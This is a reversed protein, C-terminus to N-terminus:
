RRVPVNGDGVVAFAAWYFPHSTDADDMLGLQARRLAETTPVGEDVQFLGGILRQTAGYDDPVPWHSAVVTRGGAGVFARVLGDLAYDGTGGIGAERNAVLGGVSATNCASLIILDADLRLDFIEAFSLLGDSDGDGFSTLLAPRPPCQPNPATVLGHTAFHLIRYEDLDSKRALGTDTFDAGILLAGTNGEAEVISEAAQLETPAIPNNWVGPSWECRDSSFGGSRTTANVPFGAEGLPVNNGLGLYSYQADSARSSRVDRFATPAVATSVRMKRGLWATGRFDYPDGNPDDLIANHREVSAEDMVLLNLPLRLMDGDPEFVLHEVTGLDGNVPGLLKTYLEHALGIEFPYTITQGAQEIAISDRLQDVMRGIEAPTADVRWMRPAAEPRAYIAYVADDLAILKYYVEGPQLAATLRDLDLRNDSVVRYRPYRALGEQLALQRTRLGELQDRMENIDRDVPDGALLAVETQAIEVRAREIARGVNLSQRFLQAAEDSGESLERALVAQTQALGPRQLLQSATFMDAAAAANDDSRALLAFYPALLRRLAFAPKSDGDEVLQGYLTLAEDERGNRVLFSAFEARASLLAPSAPYNDEVLRIAAAFQAEAASADGRREALEALDTLIQARLWIVSAIRGDRVQALSGLAERLDQTAEAGQGQSRLAEARIYRAQADLLQVRELMTLAGTSATLTSGFEAALRDALQQTVVQQRLGDLDYAGAPLPTDLILQAEPASDRNLADLAEFNRAMRTLIPDEGIQEGVAVFITAAELFNGLNSQQLAVNLRAELADAGQLSDASSTFFEAAEAFKGANARRYAETLAAEASIADAQARAFALADGAETLPIEVEGAQVRNTALSALALQLAQEYVAIGSAAYTKGNAQGFVLLRQLRDGGMCTYRSKATLGAPIPGGNAEICTRGAATERALLKEASSDGLVNLEAVPAAADQCVLQYARDFLGQGPRAAMIQAECLGDSGIPVSDRFAVPVENAALPPAILGLAMAASAAGAGLRLRAALRLAKRNASM